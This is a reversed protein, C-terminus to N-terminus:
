VSPSPWVLLRAMLRRQVRLQGVIGELIEHRDDEHRIRGSTSTTTTRVRRELRQGIDDRGGLFLGTVDREARRAVSRDRVEGPSSRCVAAPTL